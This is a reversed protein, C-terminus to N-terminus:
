SMNEKKDDIKLSVKARERAMLTVPNVSQGDRLVEFHLHPGTSRGTSGVRGIPTDTTVEDGAKVLNVSNHAYKTVLGDGHSVVVLNGYGPQEGSFVVRGSKAAYIHTGAAAAIDIGQHFRIVGHIPHKRLGFGSTVSGSVPLSQLGADQEIPAEETKEQNEPAPQVTAPVSPIVPNKETVRPEAAPAKENPRNVNRELDKLLMEQLGMGREAMLRALELDFMSMYMDGGLGSDSSLKVTQRMAKIMEHAFLAEMERAVAKLANPDKRGRLEEINQRYGLIKHDIKM